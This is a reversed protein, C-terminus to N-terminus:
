EVGRYYLGRTFNGHEYDGLGLYSKYVAACEKANETTFALRLGWLGVSSLEDLKDAMYLKKSNLVVNRCGFEKVVPFNAGTKDMIGSFNDCACVGMSTKVICNKTVMLPLRGYVLLETDMAKAMDRIESLRLEFSLTQSVIGLGEAAKLSYSNFINLGFDGRVDFGLGKAYLIHGINGVLADRVGLDFAKVLAKTLEDKESDHIVRPLTVAIKTEPNTLFPSFPSTDGNFEEAPVYLIEPSLDAMERSLQSKKLISVTIVPKQTSNPLPNGPIFDTLEASKLAKRKEILEAILTRRMENITSVSLSLGEDVDSKVGACYFPTGGTKYLQTQLNTSTTEKHFAIEPVAGTIIATNGRDDTAAIKAPENTRVTGVFWVPVRQYEGNLYNKRATAFIVAADNKDDERIGFMHAGTEGTYYGDTFGQRSFATKLSDLDSQSPVKGEHAARAYKETVIAVYEPRRMRGEIKVCTVGCAELEQIHSLLSNDKLSLLYEGKKGGTTYNLRCPQACVGRNGSRRGIVSSMYCQGSYCMCLAGHVFMETEIPSNKCIYTLDEKSLERALVVRSAGMAAAIRVGELNHVSMQTSSHLPVDPVARRVAQMVGFDQVIIADAGYRAASAAHEIVLPMERDTSLTNLTLHVKVGRIRCYECAQRFEEESFNKANRRANFDGFGFYIADAGNQVAAIVGEPSGAPSLVELM